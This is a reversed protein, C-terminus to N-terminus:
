GSVKVVTPNSWATERGAIIEKNVRSCLSRIVGEDMAPSVAQPRGDSTREIFLQYLAKATGDRNRMPNRWGSPPRPVPGAANMLTTKMPMSM